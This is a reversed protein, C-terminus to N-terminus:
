AAPRAVPTATAPTAPAAPAPAAPRVFVYRRFLYFRAVQSLGLGILNASVNDSLADDLGLVGRSIGLCAIPITMTAVNIVVFKVVGGDKDQTERGRFAWTRSGVYAVGMGVTNALVYATVPWGSLWPDDYIWIGHLLLNFLLLSVLTAAAGVEAFRLGEKGRRKWTEM